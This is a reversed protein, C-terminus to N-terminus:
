WWCTCRKTVLSLKDSQKYSEFNDRRRLVVHKVAHMWGNQKLSAIVLSTGLM